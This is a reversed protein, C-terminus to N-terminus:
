VKIPTKKHGAFQQGVLLDGRRLLNNEGRTLPREPTDRVRALRPFAPREEDADRHPRRIEEPDVFPLLKHAAHGRIVRSGDIKMDGLPRREM